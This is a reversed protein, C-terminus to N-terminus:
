NCNGMYFCMSVFKFYANLIDFLSNKYRYPVYKISNDLM